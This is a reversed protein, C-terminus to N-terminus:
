PKVEFVAMHDITAHPQHSQPGSGLKVVTSHKGFLGNLGMIPNSVLLTGSQIRLHIRSLMLKAIKQRM